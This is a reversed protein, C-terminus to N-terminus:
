RRVGPTLRTQKQPLTALNHASTGGHGSHIDFGIRLPADMLTHSLEHRRASAYPKICQNKRFRAGIPDKLFERFHEDENYYQELLGLETRETVTTATTAM